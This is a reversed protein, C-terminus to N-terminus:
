IFVHILWLSSKVASKISLTSVYFMCYVGVAEDPANFVEENILIQVYLGKWFGM